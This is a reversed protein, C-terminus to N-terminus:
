APARASRRSGTSWRSGSRPRPRMRSTARARRAGRRHRFGFHVAQMVMESDFVFDISNRLFPVTLLLRRSFARYGTHLESFDTGLIRNEIGTLARNALYKYRPM